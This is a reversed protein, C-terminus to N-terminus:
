RVESVAASPLVPRITDGDRLFAGARAVVIDGDKLGDKIEVLEGSILGTKVPRTVIRNNAVVQVSAAGGQDYIVGSAPVAPGRSRATEISGRAYAGIRLQPNAGLFIRVRGLRTTKDAEPSILRVSGQTEGLGPVTVVAKQGLKINVMDTEVVESDLEVEGNFIIKFMPEGIATALAGVRANRKSIIGDTPAKVDTNALRWRLERGAAEVQMKEAEAAKLGDQTAVLVADATRAASEREDYTAGSLYGSKKLPVARELQNRAEKVKAEAQVIQSQAQAISAESRAVNAVNQAILADLQETVLKALVQGKKVTDGEEAFLELIRFGEVEPSVLIEERPVLSGSVMTMQLFDATKVRAVSIAPAPAVKMENAIESHSSGSQRKEFMWYGAGALVAIAALTTLTRKSIM